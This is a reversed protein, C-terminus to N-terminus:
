MGHKKLWIAVYGGEYPVNHVLAASFGQFVFNLGDNMIIM